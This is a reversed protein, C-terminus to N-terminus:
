LINNSIHNIIDLIMNNVDFAARKSKTSKMEPISIAQLQEVVTKFKVKDSAALLKEEAELKAKLDAAEKDKIAKDAADKKAKELLRDDELKKAEIRKQELIKYQEIEETVQQIIAEWTDDNFTLVDEKVVVENNYTYCVRPGPSLKMGLNVLQNCRGIIKQRALETRESEQRENELRIKENQDDIIKQAEAQKARLIELEKREAILREQEEKALREQEAKEALEKEHETKANNLVIGFTEDDIMELTAVDELRFNYAALQDIREQLKAKRAKIEQQRIEEKAAEIKDEEAQLHNEISELEGIVRKKETNVKNQWEIAKAKLSDAYKTAAVRTKKVDQRAAYVLKLGEKDEVGNIKLPLYREKFDAIAADTVNLKVVEMNITEVPLEMVDNM